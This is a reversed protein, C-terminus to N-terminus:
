MHEMLNLDPTNPQWTLMKFENDDEEFLEQVLKAAQCPTNDQLPWQWRDGPLNM